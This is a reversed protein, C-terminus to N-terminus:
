IKKLIFQVIAQALAAIIIGILAYIVSRRATAVSSSDGGSLVMKLGSIIVVIVAIIGVAISLIGLGRTVLGSPGFIPDGGRYAQINRDTCAQPLETIEGRAIKGQAEDCVGQLV